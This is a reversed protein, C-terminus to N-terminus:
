ARNVGNRAHLYLQIDSPICMLAFFSNNGDNHAGPSSYIKKLMAYIFVDYVFMKEEFIFYYKTKLVSQPKCALISKNRSSCRKNCAVLTLM